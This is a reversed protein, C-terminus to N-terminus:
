AGVPRSGAYHTEDVASPNASRSSIFELTMVGALEVISGPGIPVGEGHAVPQNDVHTPQSSLARLTYGTARRWLEFHWRSIQRLAEHDPMTLVIDNASMGEIIELRGFSIIDQAPLPILQGTERVRVASPFRAPDRWELSMLEVSRGVGKLEVMGLTQCLLRHAVGLEQFMDRTLRIQGPDASTSVRACLNVADGTVQVGDSLVRGWHMGIRLTLQRDRARHENKESLGQLLSTMANTAAAATPFITFAGDGATDVIRGRHEPLTQDLLDIHLQQLQRGAEDGYRAFFNSSGAIDSFALAAGIEFRRALEQSLLTQLRIIETMSLTAPDLHMTRHRPNM